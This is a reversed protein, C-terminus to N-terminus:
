MKLSVRKSGLLTKNKQDPQQPFADTALRVFPCHVLSVPVSPSVDLWSCYLFQLIGECPVWSEEATIKVGLYIQDSFSRQKTVLVWHLQKRPFYVNRKFFIYEHCSRINVRYVCTAPSKHTFVGRKHLHHRLFNNIVGIMVEQIGLNHSVM